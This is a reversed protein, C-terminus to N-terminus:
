REVDKAAGDFPDGSAAEDRSTRRKRAISDRLIGLLRRNDTHARYSLNADHLRRQLLVDPMLLFRLGLDGARVFWDVDEGLEYEPRFLGVEAFVRRRVLLTCLSPMAGAREDLFVERRLWSPPATRPDVFNRFRCLAGPCQGEGQLAALQRETKEPYWLDDADLFAILEGRAHELGANRAAAVGRHSQHLCGVGPRSAAIELSGDGSGDDVVITEIARYTQSAISDLADALFRAGDFVPVIVSVLPQASDM